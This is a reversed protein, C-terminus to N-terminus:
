PKVESTDFKHALEADERARDAALKAHIDLIRKMADDPSLLGSHVDGILVFMEAGIGTLIEIVDKVTM